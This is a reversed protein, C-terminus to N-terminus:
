PKPDLMFWRSDLCLVLIEFELSWWGSICCWFELIWAASWGAVWFWFVQLQGHAGPLKWRSSWVSCTSSLRLQKLQPQVEPDTRPVKMDM